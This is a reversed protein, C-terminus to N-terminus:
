QLTMLSPLLSSLRQSLQLCFFLLRADNFFHYISPHPIPHALDSTPLYYINTISKAARLLKCAPRRGSPEASM